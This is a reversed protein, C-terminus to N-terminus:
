STVVFFFYTFFLVVGLAAAALLTSVLDCCDTFTSLIIGVVVGVFLRGEIVGDVEADEMVIM